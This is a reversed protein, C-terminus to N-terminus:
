ASRSPNRPRRRARRPARPARRRARGRAAGAPGSVAILWPSPRHRIRDAPSHMGEVDQGHFRIPVVLRANVDERTDLSIGQPMGIVDADSVAELASQLIMLVPNRCLLQPGAVDM